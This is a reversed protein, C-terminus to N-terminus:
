PGDYGDYGDYYGGYEDCESGQVGIRDAFQQGSTGAGTSHCGAWQWFDEQDCDCPKIRSCLITIGTAWQSYGSSSPTTVYVGGAIATEAQDSSCEYGVGMTSVYYYDDYYDDDNTSALEEWYRDCERYSCGYAGTLSSCDMFFSTECTDAAMPMQIGLVLVLVGLLKKM